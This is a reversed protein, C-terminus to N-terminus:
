GFIMGQDLPIRLLRYAVLVFISILLSFLLRFKLSSYQYYTQVSFTFLFSSLLFGLVVCGVLYAGFLLSIHAQARKNETGDQQLEEQDTVLGEDPDREPLVYQFAKTDPFLKKGLILFCGIIVIIATYFPFIRGRESFSLSGYLILASFAILSVLLLFELDVIDRNLRKM